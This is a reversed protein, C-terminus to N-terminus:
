AVNDLEFDYGARFAAEFDYVDDFDQRSDGPSKQLDGAAILNYVIEGFDSTSHLGWSRLVTVALLGYQRLALERAGHCLEQGTVHHPTMAASTPRARRSRSRSRPRPRTANQKAFELAELVFVYAQISYRADRAVAAALAERLSM